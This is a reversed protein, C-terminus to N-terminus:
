TNNTRSFDRSWQSLQWTFIGPTQIKVYFVWMLLFKIQKNTKFVSYVIDFKFSMDATEFNQMLTLPSLKTKIRWETMWVNM